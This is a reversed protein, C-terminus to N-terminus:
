AQVLRSDDPGYKLHTAKCTKRVQLVRVPDCAMHKLAPATGSIGYGSPNSIMVQLMAHLWPRYIAILTIGSGGQVLLQGLHNLKSYRRSPEGESTKM